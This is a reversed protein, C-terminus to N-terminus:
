HVNKFYPIFMWYDPNESDVVFEEFLSHADDFQENEVLFELRNCYNEEIEFISIERETLKM